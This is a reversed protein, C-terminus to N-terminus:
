EAVERNETPQTADNSAQRAKRVTAHETAGESETLEVPKQTPAPVGSLMAMDQQIMPLIRPNVVQAMQAAMQMYQLLKQAMSGNQAVMQRIEDKAEFDMMDLCMLAQPAVAPNFFGLQFFQIALENNSVKNYVSRRQASVSVDFVPTRFGMDVGFAMGQYQPQIGANTFSVFQEEGNKGTIRFKRPLEYFQRILEIVIEVIQTFARYTAMTSARSLKGSAEQLAAIASAATVGSPAVGSASETNGSTERLEQTTRDLLNLYAGDLNSTDIRRLFDESVSSSTHVLPKSLDLFEEENIPAEGRVFYRPTAGVMANKVAATEIIDIVTQPNRCIDVM